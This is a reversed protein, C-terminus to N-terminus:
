LKSMLTIFENYDIVGDGNLDADQILKEWYGPEKGDHEAGDKQRLLLAAQVREDKAKRVM